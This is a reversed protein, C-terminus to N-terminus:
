LEIGYEKVKNYLAKRSIGLMRAARTRNGGLKQLTQIILLREAEHISFGVEIPVHDSGASKGSIAPPLSSLDVVAGGATIVARMVVNELERVNGPWPYASLAEEAEPSFYIEGKGFESAYRTLFLSALSLVDDGRERLAPMRIEFVHLRHYLDERFAGHRTQERLDENTAAIIRVDCSIEEQGGVRQFTHTELVRLLTVQAHEDMTSIEDLFLTGGSAQEFLGRKRQHAGTFAGKEHGFLESAILHSTTAGTNVPIFPGNARSSAQHIARAALDKGTGSEGTILVSVDVGAVKDLLTYVQKMANSTGVFLGAYDM